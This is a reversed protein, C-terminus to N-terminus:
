EGEKNDEGDSNDDTEPMDPEDPEEDSILEHYVTQNKKLKESFALEKLSDMYESILSDFDGEFLLQDLYSTDFSEENNLESAIESFRYANSIKNVKHHLEDEDLNFLGKLIPYLRTIWIAQRISYRPLPPIGLYNGQDSYIPIGRTMDAMIYASDPPFLEPYKSITGLSWPEDLPNDSNRARSIMRICTEFSPPLEYSDEIEKILRNALFERPTNRYRIAQDYILARVKPSLERPKKRKEILEKM